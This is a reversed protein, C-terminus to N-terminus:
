DVDARCVTPKDRLLVISIENRRGKYHNYTTEEVKQKLARVHPPGTHQQSKPDYYEFALMYASPNNEKGDTWTKTVRGPRRLATKLKIANDLQYADLVEQVGAIAWYLLLAVLAAVFLVTLPISTAAAGEMRTNRIRSPDYRIPILDGIRYLQYTIDDIQETHSIVASRGPRLEVKYEYTIGYTPAANTHTIVPMATITAQTIPAERLAMEHIATDIGLYIVIYSGILLLLVIGGNTLLLQRDFKPTASRKPPKKLEAGQDPPATLEKDSHASSSANAPEVEVASAFLAEDEVRYAGDPHNTLAKALPSSESLAAFGGLVSAFLTIFSMVGSYVANPLVQQLLVSAAFLVGTIALILGLFVVLSRASVNM